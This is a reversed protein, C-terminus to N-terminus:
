DAPRSKLLQELHRPLGHFGGNSMVVVEDDTRLEAGLRALLADFDELVAAREGLAELAAAVDWGADPPHYVYVRDAEALSAALADRHVGMRM